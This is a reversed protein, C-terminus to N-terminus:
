GKPISTFTNYTCLGSTRITNKPNDDWQKLCVVCGQYMCTTSLRFGVSITMESDLQWRMTENDGWQKLSIVSGQGMCTTSLRFGVSITMESDTSGRQNSGGVRSSSFFPPLPLSLSDSFSGVTMLLTLTRSPIILSNYCQGPTGPPLRHELLYLWTYDCVCFM